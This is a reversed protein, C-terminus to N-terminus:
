RDDFIHWVLAGDREQVTSLHHLDNQAIYSAEQGTGRIILRRLETVHEDTDVLAWLTLVGTASKGLKQVSLMRAGLPLNFLVEDDVHFPYKYVTKM